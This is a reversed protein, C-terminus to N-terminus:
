LCIIIHTYIYIYVCEYKYIYVCVYVYEVLHGEYLVVTVLLSIVALVLQVCLLTQIQAWEQM